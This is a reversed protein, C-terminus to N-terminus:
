KKKSCRHRPGLGVSHASNAEAGRDPAKRAVKQPVREAYESTFPVIPRLPRFIKRVRKRRVLFFDVRVIHSENRHTTVTNCCELAAWTRVIYKPEEGQAAVLLKRVIGADAFSRMADKRRCQCGDAGLFSMKAMSFNMILFYSRVDSKGLSYDAPPQGVLDDAKTYSSVPRRRIM